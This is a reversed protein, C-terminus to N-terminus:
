RCKIDHFFCFDDGFIERISPLNETFNLNEVPYFNNCFCNNNEQSIHQNNFNNLVSIESNYYNPIYNSSQFPIDKVNIIENENRRESFDNIHESLVNVFNNNMRELCENVSDNNNYEPFNNASNNNIHEPYTNQFQISHNNRKRGRKKPMEVKFSFMNKRMLTKEDIPNQKKTNCNRSNKNKIGTKQNKM